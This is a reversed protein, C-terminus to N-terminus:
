INSWLQFLTLGVNSRKNSSRRNISCLATNFIGTTVRRGNHPFKLCSFRLHYIFEPLWRSMTRRLPQLTLCYSHKVECIGFWFEGCPVFPIKKISFVFCSNGSSLCLDGDREEGHTIKKKRKPKRMDGDLANHQLLFFLKWPFRSIVPNLVYM